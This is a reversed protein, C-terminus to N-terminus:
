ELLAVGRDQGALNPLTASEYKPTKIQEPKIAVALGATEENFPCMFAPQLPANTLSAQASTQLPHLRGFSRCLGSGAPRLQLAEGLVGSM